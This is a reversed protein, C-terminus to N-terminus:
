LDVLGEIKLMTPFNGALDVVKVITPRLLDFVVVDLMCDSFIFDVFVKVVAADDLLVICDLYVM